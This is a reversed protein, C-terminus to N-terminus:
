MAHGAVAPAPAPLTASRLFLLSTGAEHAVEALLAREDPDYTRQGPKEGCVLAGLMRGRSLMPFATGANGLSSRLAGLDVPGLCARMRVIVPDDIGIPLLTEHSPAAAVPILVDGFREYAVIHEAAILRRTEDCVNQLLKEADEVYACDRILAQLGEETAHKRAFLLREVVEDIRREIPKVSFAVVLALGVEVVISDVKSVAFKTIAIEAITFLAVVMSLIATYVVARNVVFSLDVVRYRLAVYAYGFALVFLTLNLAGYAPVPKGMLALVLNITSGSIGIVSTWFVWAIVERNRSEPRLLAIAYGLLVIRFGLQASWDLNATTHSPAQTLAATVVDAQRLVILFMVVAGAVRFFWREPRKLAPGTLAIMAEVILYRLGFATAYVVSEVITALPWGLIAYSVRFGEGAAFGFLALGSFLGFRGKGRAVLVIGIAMAFMKFLLDGYAALQDTVSLPRAYLRVPYLKGDRVVPLELAGGAPPDQFRKRVEDPTARSWDYVDGARLGDQAAQPSVTTIIRRSGDVLHLGIAPLKGIRSISLGQVLLLTVAIGALLAAFLARM